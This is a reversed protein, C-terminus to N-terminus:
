LPMSARDYDIPDFDEREYILKEFAAWGEADVFTAEATSVPLLWDINVALGGSRFRAFDPPLHPPQGLYLSNMTSLDALVPVNRVITGIEPLERLAVVMRGYDGLVYPLASHRLREPAIMILELRFRGDAVPSDLIYDSLGLTSYIVAEDIRGPAFEVVQFGLDAGAPDTSWAASVSGLHRTLHRFLRDTLGGIATAAVPARGSRDAIRDTLNPVASLPAVTPEDGCYPAYAQSQYM